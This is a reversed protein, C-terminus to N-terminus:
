RAGEAHIAADCDAAGGQFELRIPVGGRAVENRLLVDVVRELRALWLARAAPWAVDAQLRRRAIDMLRDRAEAQTQPRLGRAYDEMIRHLVNGRLAADPGPRLADLPYLRLIRKAYIAFPDRILHPIDTVWLEKPRVAAPPRPSPRTAPKAAGNQPEELLAAKRLWANGRARMDCLLGKGEDGPLGELLNTLRSIWRSTVTEADASRRARSLVVRRAAVAQQFDHASLGIQRDPLLLGVKNRMDRNLWADPAPMGPWIGENLGGLIVIDAGQVRAELTGWIMIDPHSLLADRLPEAQQLVANFINAYDVPSLAGAHPAEDTLAQMVRLAGKGAEADWLGGAGDPVMGRALTEALTQHWAVHAAFSRVGIADVGTLAGQLWGVWLAVGADTQLRAWDGLFTMTPFAVGHKRIYQELVRTWRLHDGRGATSHMLPHKLLALLAEASLPVGALAVVQRLFRGPPSLALPRGASDDPVIGWRDLSAAVMRTLGRDPTILAAKQGNEAAQRLILSIALAEARPTPADILTVEALAEPLETLAPGDRLWQDTVPAPRLALSVLRNRPPNPPLAPAHWAAVAKCSLGLAQMLAFYRFQPHDESVKADLLCDWVPQPQDTDFGPLIVAGQPLRAVARMLLATTGRSGTSGAIIVPDVPPMDHWRSILREVVLRQRGEADPAIDAAFFAAMIGLFDQTRRWHASHGSVDLAAIADPHVGEGRMEDMLTALSDALDFLASRPAIAPDATMLRDIAQTMQLRRRLPPVAVPLDPFAMNRGLDTVLLIKPLLGPGTSTFVETIRRRMRPANVILTVRAMAEPPKSKLREKLGAVVAAPFDVGPAQAFVRPNPTEPFM